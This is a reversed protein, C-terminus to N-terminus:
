SEWGTRGGWFIPDRTVDRLLAFQALRDAALDRAREDRADALPCAAILGEAIARAVTLDPDDDALGPSFCAAIVLTAAVLPFVAKRITM